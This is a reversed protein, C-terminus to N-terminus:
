VEAPANALASCPYDPLISKQGWDGDIALFKALVASGSQKVDAAISL